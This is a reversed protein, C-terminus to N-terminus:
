FALSFYAEKGDQYQKRLLFDRIEGLQAIKLDYFYELCSSSKLIKTRPLLYNIKTM